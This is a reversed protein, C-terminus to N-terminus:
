KTCRGSVSIMASHHLPRCGMEKRAVLQRTTQNGANLVNEVHTIQLASSETSAFLRHMKSELHVARRLSRGVGAELPLVAIVVPGHSELTAVRM